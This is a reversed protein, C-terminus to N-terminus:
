GIHGGPRKKKGNKKGIHRAVSGNDRNEMSGEGEARGKQEEEDKEGEIQFIIKRLRLPKGPQRRSQKTGAQHGKKQKQQGAEQNGAGQLDEAGNEGSLPQIEKVPLCFSGSWLEAAMIAEM